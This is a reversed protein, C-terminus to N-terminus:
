ALGAAQELEKLSLETYDLLRQMSPVSRRCATYGFGITDVYSTLTINLAVGDIPISVPYMEDLRGGNFYLPKTPGPVNSIVVNFPPRLREPGILTTLPMPSMSAAAYAIQEVRTMQRLKAKAIKTSEIIQRLRAGPDAVETALNALIMSVQNGDEPGDAARVSVPVMATLAEDPLARQQILYERLAGACMALVVDNITAGSAKGVAKIREMPFSQAAFRRSATIRTNFMTRPAQYPRVDLRDVDTRRVLDLLGKAMGPVVRYNDGMAQILAAFPNMTTGGELPERRRKPRQVAWPPPMDRREPDPSLTNLTVKTAAVGDFMAHHLKGYMAYRKDQLGEVFHIEWLPRSRDMVGGHWRSVLTLLERVRGPHPLASHRFHHELDFHEDRAWHWRGRKFVPRQDFPAAPVDYERLHEVLETVFRKGSGPPPTFLQLGAVHMPMRAQEMMLFMADPPSLPKM